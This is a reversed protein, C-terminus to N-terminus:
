ANLRGLLGAMKTFSWTKRQTRAPPEEFWVSLENSAWGSTTDVIVWGNCPIYPILQFRHIVHKTFRPSTEKEMKEKGWKWWVSSNRSTKLHKLINWLNKSKSIRPNHGMKVVKKKLATPQSQQKKKQKEIQKTECKVTLQQHQNKIFIMMALTEALINMWIFIGCGGSFLAFFSCM